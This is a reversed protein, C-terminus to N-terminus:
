KCLDAVLIVTRLVDLWSLDDPTRLVGSVKERGRAQFKVAEQKGLLLGEWCWLQCPLFGRAKRWSDPESAIAYNRSLLRSLAYSASIGM